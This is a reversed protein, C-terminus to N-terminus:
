TAFSVPIACDTNDSQFVPRLLGLTSLSATSAFYKSTGISYKRSYSTLSINLFFFSDIASRCFRRFRIHLIASYTTGRITEATAAVTNFRITNRYVAWESGSHHSHNHFSRSDPFHLIEAFNRKRYDM